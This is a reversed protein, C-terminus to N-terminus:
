ILHSDDRLSVEGQKALRGIVSAATARVHPQQHGLLDMVSQIGQCIEERLGEIYGFLTISLLV